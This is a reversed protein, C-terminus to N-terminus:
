YEYMYVQRRLSSSNSAESGITRQAFLATCSLSTRVAQFAPAYGSAIEALTEHLIVHYASYHVAEMALSAAHLAAGDAAAVLWMQLSRREWLAEHLVLCVLHHTKLPAAANRKCQHRWLMAVFPM